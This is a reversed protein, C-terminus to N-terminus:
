AVERNVERNVESQGCGDHPNGRHHDGASERRSGCCNGGYRGEPLFMFDSGSELSYDDYTEWNGSTLDTNPDDPDVCYGDKGVGNRYCMAFDPPTAGAAKPNHYNALSKAEDAPILEVYDNPLKDAEWYIQGTDTTWIVFLDQGNVTASYVKWTGYVASAGLAEAQNSAGTIENIEPTGNLYSLAWFAYYSIHNATESPGGCRLSYKCAWHDISPASFSFWWIFPVKDAGRTLPPILQRYLWRAQERETIADLNHYGAESVAVYKIRDDKYGIYGNSYVLTSETHYNALLADYGWAEVSSEVPPIAQCKSELQDPGENYLYATMEELCGEAWCSINAYNHIELGDMFSGLGFDMVRKIFLPDFYSGAHAWHGGTAPLAGESAAYLGIYGRAVFDVYELHDPINDTGSGVVEGPDDCNWDTNSEGAWIHGEDRSCDPDGV